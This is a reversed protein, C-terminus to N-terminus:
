YRLEAVIPRHDSGLYPGTWRATVDLPGKLLIHDIPIAFIPITRQWTASFGRGLQSDRLGAAFLPKMSHSWPTANLDGAVITPETEQGVRRALKQFVSDRNEACGPSMPPLPHVGYFVIRQNGIEVVVRVMPVEVMKSSFMEYEIIPHKSYLAWGFNDDQPHTLAHPMTAKLPELGAEWTPSVEPFFALDPDVRRVWAVTEAQQTNSSLVNFSMVRLPQDRGTLDAPPLYYPVLQWSPTILFLGALLAWRFRGMLLFVAACLLQFGFYQAQFHSGIDFVWSARGFLGALSVLGGVVCGFKLFAMFSEVLPGEKPDATPVPPTPRNMAPIQCAKM